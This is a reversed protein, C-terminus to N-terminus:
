IHLETSFDAGGLHDVLLPSVSETLKGGLYKGYFDPLWKLKKSLGTTVSDDTIEIRVRNLSIDHGLFAAINTANIEIVSTPNEIDEFAVLLPYDSINVVAPSIIGDRKAIRKVCEPVDNSFAPDLAAMSIQVLDDRVLNVTKLLAFLTKGNPLNVAVAEGHAAWERAKGGPQLDPRYGATVQYVSSGTRVGLPTDVEVTMRFRYGSGGGFLGCGRLMTASGLVALVGLLRRRAMVPLFGTEQM